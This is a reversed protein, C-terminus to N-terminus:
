AQMAHFPQLRSAVSSTAWTVYLAKLQKAILRSALVLDLAQSCRDSFILETLTDQPSCFQAKHGKRGLDEIHNEIENYIEITFSM